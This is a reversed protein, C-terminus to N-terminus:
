QIGFVLRATQFYIVLTSVDVITAILPGSMVAPDYGLIKALVPLTGGVVSAYIVAIFLSLGFTIGVKLYTTEVIMYAQFVCIISLILGMEFAVIFEKYWIIRLSKFFKEASVEGVALARVIMSASQAGVNGATGLLSPMFFSLAVIQSMINSFFKLTNGSLLNGILLLVIIWPIRKKLLEFCTAETYTDDIPLIAHMKHLDETGEDELIDIIDDVTIIGVLKGDRSVVPLSIFNYDKFINAVKEQDEDEYVYIVRPVMIDDILKEAPNLILDKLTIVGALHMAQDLVYEYYVSEIHTGKRRLEAIAEGVTMGTRLRVYDTTMIGGAVDEEYSLLKNLNKEEERTLLTKFDDAENIELEQFFDARDDDSMENMILKKFELTANELVLMKDEHDLLEFVQITLSKDLNELIIQFDHISFSDFLVAIDAPHLLESLTKVESIDNNEIAIRIDPVILIKTEQDM